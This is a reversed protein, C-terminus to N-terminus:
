KGKRDAEGLPHRGSSEIGHVLRTLTRNVPADIMDAIAGNIFDIETRDGTSIDQLMSSRNEATLRAVEMVRDITEDRDFVFGCEEAAVLAEDVSACMLDRSSPNELLQGNRVELIATLANIGVNVLLKSWMLRQIDDSTSVEIGAGTLERAIQEVRRTVPGSLEGLFTKGEGAHHVHGDEILNAGMTTSGGLIQSGPVVWAIARTNGIGNQATWVATQKGVLADHQNLAKRTQYAKVWVMVLDCAGVSEADTTVPVLVHHAGRVGEIQLGEASLREARDPLCDVLTVDQGGEKLYAAFLCGMAGPGIIAIKM